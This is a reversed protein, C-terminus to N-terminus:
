RICEAFFDPQSPEKAGLCNPSIWLREKHRNDHGNGNGLRSYGGHAKWAHVRWGAAELAEHGEGAYGSLVIRLKPNDGNALCWDRVDHAVTASEVAYIGNNRGAEASYPPDFYIGCPTGPGFLVSPSCVRKWDGCCVRAVSLRDALEHFWERLWAKRDGMWEGTVPGASEPLNKNAGQGRRTLFPLKRHVGKGADGLNPRQRKVGQGSTSLHPLRRHVGMGSRSLHPRIRRVGQGDNGKAFVGDVNSWPGDGSCWGGGIWANIGWLWRGAIQADYYDPHAMLREPLNKKRELLWLHVAHAMAEDV